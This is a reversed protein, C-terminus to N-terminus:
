NSRGKEDSNARDRNATQKIKNNGFRWTLEASIRQSDWTNHQIYQLNGFNVTVDNRQTKFIDSVGIRFTGQDHFIKRNISLSVNSSSGQHYILSQTPSNYRASLQLMFKDPLTFRQITSAMYSWKGANLLGQYLQGNFHNYFGNFKNIINWWKNIRIPYNLNFSWNDMTGANQTTRYTITGTQVLVPSFFDATHTYSSTLTIWEHYTYNLEVNTNRQVRLTPNGTQYNYPDLQYSFPQLDSYDPRKIRQNLSLRFNHDGSPQWTLYIAPLLNLYSSDPKTGLASIGKIQSQELRLGFQLGWHKFNQGLNAYASNVKETYYFNDLQTNDPTVAGFLIQNVTLSNNTNVHSVKFGAELRLKNKWNHSYDGKLTSISIDTLTLYRSGNQGVSIINNTVNSEDNKQYDARDLDVSFETGSTDNFRYNLNYTNWHRVNPNFGNTRYSTDVMGFRQLRSDTQYLGTNTSAEREIVGGLTQKPSLYYDLTLRIIPDSWRDTNINAQQLFANNLTTQKDSYTQYWGYHYAIYASAALKGTGYNLLGTLDGMNHGGQSSEFDINGTLGKITNQKTKINLLATNGIVDYKASANTMVEVLSVMGAPMAKLMKVLDRSSMKVVKDNIMIQLADKGSLGIADENDSVVIGPALRIVDLANDALKLVQSNVSIVSRDLKQQVIPQRATITVQKLLHTDTQLIIQGLSWKSAILRIRQAQFGTYSILLYTAGQQETEFYGKNNASLIRVPASDKAQYIKIVAGPLPANREDTITGIIKGSNTQGYLSITVLSFIFFLRAKM